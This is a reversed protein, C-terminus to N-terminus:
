NNFRMFRFGTTQTSVTFSADKLERWDNKPAESNSTRFPELAQGTEDIDMVGNNNRDLFAIAAYEGPALDVVVTATGDSSLEFAVTKAPIETPNDAFPNFLLLGGGVQKESPDAQIHAVFMGENSPFPQQTSIGASIPSFRIEPLWQRWWLLCMSLGVLGGVLLLQKGHNDKWASLISTFM